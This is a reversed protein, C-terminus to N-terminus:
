AGAAGAQRQRGGGARVRQQRQRPVWQSAAAIAVAVKIGFPSALVRGRAWGAGVPEPNNGQTQCRLRGAFYYWLVLVLM